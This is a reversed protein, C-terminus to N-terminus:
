FGVTRGDGLRVRAVRAKAVTHSGLQALATLQEVTDFILAVETLRVSSTHHARQNLHHLVAVLHAHDM